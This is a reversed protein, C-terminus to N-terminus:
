EAYKWIYGKYTKLKNTCCRTIGHREFGTEKTIEYISHWKKILKNDLTYQNIKKNKNNNNGSQIHLLNNKSAHNMNEAHTCWELNEVRNDCKDGNIHNVEPKNEPNPIFTEAVLRHVKLTRKTNNATLTIFIYGSKVHNLKLIKEANIVISKNYANVYLNRKIRKVMGLNSIQYLGEYGKIDKWIEKM